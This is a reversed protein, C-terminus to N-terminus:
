RPAGARPMAGFMISEAGFGVGFGSGTSFSSPRRPRVIGLTAIVGFLLILLIVLGNSRELGGVRGPETARRLDNV